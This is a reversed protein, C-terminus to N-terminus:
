LVVLTQTLGTAIARDTSAPASWHFRGRIGGNLENAAGVPLLPGDVTATVADAMDPVPGKTLKVAQAYAVVALCRVVGNEPLGPLGCFVQQRWRM